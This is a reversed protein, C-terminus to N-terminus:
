RGCLAAFSCVGSGRPLRSHATRVAGNRHPRPISYHSAGPHKGTIILHGTYNRTYSREIGATASDMLSNGVVLVVIGVVMIIGVILTKIKQKRLNRWAIRLLIRM